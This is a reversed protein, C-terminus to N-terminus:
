KTGGKLYSKDIKGNIDCNVHDRYYETHNALKKVRSWKPSHVLCFYVVYKFGWMDDISRLNAETLYVLCKCTECSVMERLKPPKQIEVNNVCNHPESFPWM